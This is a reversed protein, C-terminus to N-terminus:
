LEHCISWGANSIIRRVCSLDDWCWGGGQQHLIWTAREAASADEVAPRFYYGGSSGDNCYVDVSDDFKVLDLTTSSVSTSAFVVLLVIFGFYHRAEMDLNDKWRRSLFYM